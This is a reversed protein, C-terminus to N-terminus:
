CLFLLYDAPQVGTVFRSAGQLRYRLCDGPKLDHPQGDVTVLLQGSQLLLHHELGPRPPASYHLSQAAPLHCHLVEGEFPPASPSLVRRQFGSNPDTWLRTDQQPVVAPARHEVQALLQSMSIQYATCLKGLTETTPSVQAKELRALTARSVGSQGALQDLTWGRRLRLQALHEALEQDFPTSM